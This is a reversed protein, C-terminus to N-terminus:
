SSAIYFTDHLREGTEFQHALEQLMELEQDLCFRRLEAWARMHVVEVPLTQAPMQYPRKAKASLAEKHLKQWNFYKM